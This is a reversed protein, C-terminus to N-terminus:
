GVEEDEKRLIPCFNLYFFHTGSIKIGDSNTYGEICWQKIKKWFEIYKPSGEPYDCYYGDKKWKKGLFSFEHSNTFKLVHPTYPNNVM